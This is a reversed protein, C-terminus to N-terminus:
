FDFGVSISAAKEDLLHYELNLKLNKKIWFDTGLVLGWNDESKYRKRNADNIWRILDYTEYKFGLYPNFQKIQMSGLCSGQWEDVVVTYRGDTTHVRKPHVSIHQFGTVIKINKDKDERLRIRFGYGGSFSTSFEQDGYESDKYTIKGSGGKLDISLWDFVGYSLMLLQGPNKVRGHNHQFKREIVFNYEIGGFWKKKQPMHTGYCPAAMLNNVILISLATIIAFTIKYKIQM